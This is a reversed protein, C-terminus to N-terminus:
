FVLLYMHENLCLQFFHENAKAPSLSLVSNLQDIGEVSAKCLSRQFETVMLNSRMYFSGCTLPKLQQGLAVSSLFLANVEESYLLLWLALFTVIKYM